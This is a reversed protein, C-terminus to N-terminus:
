PERLWAAGGPTCILLSKVNVLATLKRKVADAASEPCIL